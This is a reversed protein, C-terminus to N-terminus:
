KPANTNAAPIYQIKHKKATNLRNLNDNLVLSNPMMELNNTELESASKRTATQENFHDLNFLIDSWSTISDTSNNSMEHNLISFLKLEDLNTDHYDVNFLPFAKTNPEVPSLDLPLGDPLLKSGLMPPAVKVFPEFPALYSFNVPLQLEQEEEPGDGGLEDNFSVDLSEPSKAIFNDIKSYNISEVSQLSVNNLNLNSILSPPAAGAGRLSGRKGHAFTAINEDTNQM